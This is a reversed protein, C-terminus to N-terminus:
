EHGSRLRLERAQGAERASGRLEEAWYGRRGGDTGRLEELRIMLTTMIELVELRIMLTTM